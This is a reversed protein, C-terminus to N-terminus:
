SVAKRVAVPSFSADGIVFVKIQVGITGALAKELIETSGFDWGRGGVILVDQDRLELVTM